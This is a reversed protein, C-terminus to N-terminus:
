SNQTILRKVLAYYSHVLLSKVVSLSGRFHCYYKRNEYKSEPSQPLLSFTMISADLILPYTLQM